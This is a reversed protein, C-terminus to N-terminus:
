ATVFGNKLNVIGPIINFKIHHRMPKNRDRDSPIRFIKIDGIINEVRIRVRSLATNYEKEEKDLSKNKSGKYPFEIPEHLKDIGQYGSDVFVRANAPLSPEQKHLMFDHISGPRSKSVHVIRDKSNICRKTKITHRKKKGSDYSKQGKKPRQTPHETADLILNEGEEKSLHKCKSITRVTALIPELKQIIRCVRPKDWDFLYGVFEQTLYRRDYLLRMLIM